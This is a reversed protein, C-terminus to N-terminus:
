RGDGDDDHDGDDDDDTTDVYEDEYIWTAVIPTTAM